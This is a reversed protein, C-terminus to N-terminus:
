SLTCLIPSVGWDLKSESEPLTNLSYVDLVRNGHAKSSTLAM